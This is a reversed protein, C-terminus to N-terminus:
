LPINEMEFEVKRGNVNRTPPPQFTSFRTPNITAVSSGSQVSGVNPDLSEPLSGYLGSVIERDAIQLQHMFAENLAFLTSETRRQKRRYWLCGFCTLVWILFLAGFAGVIIWLTRDDLVQLLIKCKETNM